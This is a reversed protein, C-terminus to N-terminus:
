TCCLLMHIPAAYARTSLCRGPEASYCVYMHMVPEQLCFSGTAACLMQTCVHVPAAVRDNSQTYFLCMWSLVHLSIYFLCRGKDRVSLMRLFTKLACEASMIKKVCRHFMKLNVSLMIYICNRLAYEAHAFFLNDIDADFKM